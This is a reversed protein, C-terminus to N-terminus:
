AATRPGEGRRAALAARALLTGLRRAEGPTLPISKLPISATLTVPGGHLASVEVRLPEATDLDFGDHYATADPVPGPIEVGGQLRLAAGTANRRITGNHRCSPASV